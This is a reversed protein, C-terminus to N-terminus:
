VPMTSHVPFCSCVAAGLLAEGMVYFSFRGTVGGCIIVVYWLIRGLLRRRRASVACYDEHVKWIAEDSPPSLLLLFKHRRCVRCREAHLENAAAKEENRSSLLVAALGLDIGELLRLSHKFRLRFTVFSVLLAICRINRFHLCPLIVFTVFSCFGLPTVFTM